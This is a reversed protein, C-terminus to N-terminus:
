RLAYLRWILAGIACCELLMVFLLARIQINRVAVHYAMRQTIVSLMRFANRHAGVQKLMLLARQRYQDGREKQLNRDVYINGM